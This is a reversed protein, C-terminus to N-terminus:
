RYIPPLHVDDTLLRPTRAPQNNEPSPGGQRFCASIAGPHPPLPPNRGKPSVPNLTKYMWTPCPGHPLMSAGLTWGLIGVPIRMASVTNAMPSNITLSGSTATDPTAPTVTVTLAYDTISNNTYSSSSTIACFGSDLAEVLAADPSTVAAAGAPTFHRVASPNTGVGLNITAAAPCILLIATATPANITITAGQRAYVIISDALIATITVTTGVSCAIHVHAAPAAATVTVTAAAPACTQLNAASEATITVTTAVPATVVLGSPQPATITM